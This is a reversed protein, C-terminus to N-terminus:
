YDANAAKVMKVIQRKTLEIDFNFGDIVECATEYTMIGKEKGAILSLRVEIRKMQEKTAKM